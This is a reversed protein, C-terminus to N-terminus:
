LSASFDCLFLPSETPNVGKRYKQSKGPNPFYYFCSFTPEVFLDSRGAGGAVGQNQLWFGDAEVLM